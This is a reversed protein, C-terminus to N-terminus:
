KKDENIRIIKMFEKLSMQSYRSPIINLRILTKFMTYWEIPKSDVDIIAEELLVSYYENILNYSYGGLELTERPVDSFWDLVNNYTIKKGGTERSYIDVMSAYLTYNSGHELGYIIENKFLELNTKEKM